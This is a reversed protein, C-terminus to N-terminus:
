HAIEVGPRSAFCMLASPLDVYYVPLGDARPQPAVLMGLEFVEWGVDAEGALFSGDIQLDAVAAFRFSREGSSDGVFGLTLVDPPVWNVEVLAFRESSDIEWAQGASM